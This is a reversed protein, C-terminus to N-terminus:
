IGTNQAIIFALTSTGPKIRLWGTEHHMPKGNEAHWTRSSFNIFLHFPSSIFFIPMKNSPHVVRHDVFMTQRLSSDVQRLTFFLHFSLMSWSLIHM